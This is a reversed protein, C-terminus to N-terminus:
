LWLNRSDDLKESNVHNVNQAIIKEASPKQVMDM